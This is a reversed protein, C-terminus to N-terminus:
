KNITSGKAIVDAKDAVLITIEARRNVYSYGRVSSSQQNKKKKKTQTDRIPLM